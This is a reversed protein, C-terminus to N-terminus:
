KTRGLKGRKPPLLDEDPSRGFDRSKGLADTTSPGQEVEEDMCEYDLEDDTELMDSETGYDSWDLEDPQMTTISSSAAKRKDGLAKLAGYCDDGAFPAIFFMDDADVKQLVPDADHGCHTSCHEVEIVDGKRFVNMYATCYRVVKKSRRYKAEKACPGRYARHCRLYTVTGGGMSKTMTTFRSVINSEDALQRWEEFEHVSGFTLQEVVYEDDTQAHAKQAHFALDRHSRVQHSCLPCTVYLRAEHVIGEHKERKHKLLHYYNGYVRGCECLYNKSRSAVRQQAREIKVREIEDKTYNHVFFLHNYVNKGKTSGCEPCSEKPRPKRPKPQEPPSM